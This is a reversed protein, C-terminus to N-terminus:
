RRLGEAEMIILGPTMALKFKKKSHAKNSCSGTM